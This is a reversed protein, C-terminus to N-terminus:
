ARSICLALLAAASDDEDKGNSRARPPQAAKPRTALVNVPPHVVPPYPHVVAGVDTTAQDGQARVKEFNKISADIQQLVTAM